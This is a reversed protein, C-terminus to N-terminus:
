AGDQRRLIDRIMPSPDTESACWNARGPHTLTAVVIGDGNQHAVSTWKRGNRETFSAVCETAGLKEGVWRGATGGLAIVLRARTSELVKQHFPWCADLFAAKERALDRESRTRVFVVNSSPTSRLPMGVAKALHQMRLQLPSGGLKPNSWIEDCYASYPTARQRTFKISSAVTAEAHDRTTPDGGPNLGLIYVSSRGEFSDRGSYCVAGSRNLLERPVLSVLIDFM